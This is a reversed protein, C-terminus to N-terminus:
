KIKGIYPKIEKKYSIKFQALHAVVKDDENNINLLATKNDKFIKQVLQKKRKVYDIPQIFVIHSKGKSNGDIFIERPKKLLIYINYATGYKSKKIKYYLQSKYGEFEFRKM